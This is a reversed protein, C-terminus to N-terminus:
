PLDHDQEDENRTDDRQHHLLWEPSAAMKPHTAMSFSMTGTSAGCVSATSKDNMHSDRSLHDDHDDSAM